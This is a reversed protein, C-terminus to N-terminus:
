AVRHVDASMVSRTLVPVAPTGLKRLNDQLQTVFNGLVDERTNPDFMAVAWM